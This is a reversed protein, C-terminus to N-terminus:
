GAPATVTKWIGNWRQILGAGKLHHPVHYSQHIGYIHELPRVDKAICHGERNVPYATYFEM